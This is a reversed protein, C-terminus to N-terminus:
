SKVAYRGIVDYASYKVSTLGLLVRRYEETIGLTYSSPRIVINDTVTIKRGNVVVDYNVNDNYISENGGAKNFIFGEKFNELKGLELASVPVRNGESDKIYKVVGAITVHLKKESDELVYKKAGMTAFRNPLKYGEDEFVGLYHVEGNQDKAYAGWRIAEEVQRRNYESLDLDGVYKVSDTDCYVFNDGAQDIAEQLCQRAIATCWVGWAYSLFAKRNNIEILDAVSRNEPIFVEEGGVFVLSDKCPDQVMMGYCSNLMEKNTMYYIYEDTGEKANKLVTKQTYYKMIVRRLNVPLMHYNASYLDSVRCDDWAYMSRIINFDVDTLTTELYDASLIRGNCNVINRIYRCKDKSLYPCGCTIEKLRINTFSIRFLLAKKGLLSKLTSVSCDEEPYFRSMPLRYKLLVNPYSSVIDMSRVNEVIEDTYYRNSMTNGGRFAERLLVYVAPSPLINRIGKVNNQLAKRVDNRVYGTKTLPINAVTLGELQMKKKLAQVLGKVDNVCYELERDTLPTDPLRLKDYDFEAGSLKMNEVNYRKTFQDLSLGTLQYSCRLEFCDLMTCKLVHREDIAFVEDAQFDYVGKLYQFEYSLNHVYVVLCSGILYKRLNLLFTRFEEWTRGIVTQDELQFQWIYMVSQEIEKLRSTEIDFAAVCNLYQKGKERRTRKLAGYQGIIEYDFSDVRSINMLISGVTCGPTIAKM